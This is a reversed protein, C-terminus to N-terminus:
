NRERKELDKDVAKEAFFFRKKKTRKSLYDDLSLKNFKDPEKPKVIEEKKNEQVEKQEKSKVPEVPKEKHVYDSSNDWSKNKTNRALYESLPDEKQTGSKDKDRNFKNKMSSILDRGKSKTSLIQNRLKTNKKIKKFHKKSKERSNFSIPTLRPKSLDKHKQSVIESRKKKAEEERQARIKELEREKQREIRSRKIKELNRGLVVDKRRLVGFTSKNGKKRKRLSVIQHLLDRKFFIIYL